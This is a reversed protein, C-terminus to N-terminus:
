VKKDLSTIDIVSIEWTCNDDWIDDENMVASHQGEIASGNIKLDFFEGNSAQWRGAVDEREITISPKSEKDDDKSCGSLTVIFASMILTAIFTSKIKTRM